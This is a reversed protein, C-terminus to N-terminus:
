GRVDALQKRTLLWLLRGAAPRVSSEFEVCAAGGKTLRVASVSEGVLALGLFENLTPEHGVLLLTERPRASRRIREFIPQALRGSELEEWRELRPARPFGAQVLEATDVARRAGSTGIRRAGKSLRVLAPAARRMQEIGKPTLPREDDDPWRAPDRLEAPGHRVVVVRVARAGATVRV